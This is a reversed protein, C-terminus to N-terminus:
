AYFDLTENGKCDLCHCKGNCLDCDCVKQSIAVKIEEFIPIRRPDACALAADNALKIEELVQARSCKFSCESMEYEEESQFNYPNAM